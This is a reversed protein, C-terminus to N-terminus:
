EDHAARERCRLIKLSMYTSHDPLSMAICLNEVLLLELTLLDMINHGSSERLMGTGGLLCLRVDEVVNKGLSFDTTM